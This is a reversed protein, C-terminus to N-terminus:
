AREAVAEPEAEIADVGDVASVLWPSEDIWADIGEVPLPKAIYYGQAYDCGFETVMNLAALSEVGEAVVALGLNHGLDVTPRVIAADDPDNAINIVFSKDIKLETAPLDKLYTL